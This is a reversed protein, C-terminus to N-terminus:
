NSIEIDCDGECTIDVLSCADKIHFIMDTPDVSPEEEFIEDLDIVLEAEEFSDESQCDGIVNLFLTIQAPFSEMVIGNWTVEYSVDCNAPVDLTVALLNGERQVNKIDSQIKCLEDSARKANIEEFKAADAYFTYNDTKVTFESRPGNDPGADANSTDDCALLVVMAATILGLALGLKTIFIRYNEM